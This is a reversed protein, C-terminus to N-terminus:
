PVLKSVSEPLSDAVRVIPIGTQANKHMEEMARALNVLHDQGVQLRTEDTGDGHHDRGASAGDSLDPSIATWNQAADTSRYVRQTATYLTTPVVPDLIYPANWNKRDGTDIGNIVHELQEAANSM